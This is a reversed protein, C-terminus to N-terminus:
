YFTGAHYLLLTRRSDCHSGQYILERLNGFIGPFYGVYDAHNATLLPTGTIEAAAGILFDPLVNNKTGKQSRYKKYAQGARWLVADDSQSYRDLALTSIARDVQAQSAMGVGLECYVIDCVLAPGNAKCAALQAVSWKHHPEAPKLIAIIVNTDIFTTM